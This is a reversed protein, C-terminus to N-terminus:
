IPILDEFLKNLKTGDPKPLTEPFLTEIQKDIESKLEDYNIGAIGIM